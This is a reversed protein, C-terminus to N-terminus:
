NATSKRRNLTSEIEHILENGMSIRNKIGTDDSDANRALVLGMGLLQIMRM